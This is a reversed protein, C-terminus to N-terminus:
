AAERRQLMAQSLLLLQYVALRLENPDELSLASYAIDSKKDEFLWRFKRRKMEISLMPDATARYVTALIDALIFEMAMIRVEISEGTPKNM